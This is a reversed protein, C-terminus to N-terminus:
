EKLEIIISSYNVFTKSELIITAQNSPPEKLEKLTPAIDIVFNGFSNGYFSLSNIKTKSEGDLLYVDFPKKNNTFVENMTLRVTNGAKAWNYTQQWNGFIKLERQEQRRKQVMEEENKIIKIGTDIVFAVILLAISVTIFKGM